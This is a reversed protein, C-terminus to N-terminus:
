GTTAGRSHSYQNRDSPAAQSRGAVGPLGSSRANLHLYDVLMPKSGGVPMWRSPATCQAPSRSPEPGSDIERRWLPDEKWQRAIRDMGISYVHLGGHTDIHMRLFSKYNEIRLSSFAEDMHRGALSALGLYSGFITVSLPAALVWFYPLMLLIYSAFSFRSAEAVGVSCVAARAHYIHTPLDAVALASGFVWVGVDNWPAPLNLLILPPEAQSGRNAQHGTEGLGMLTLELGCAVGVACLSLTLGLPVGWLMRRGQGWQGEGVMVMSVLLGVQLVLAVNTSEFIRVYCQWVLELWVQFVNGGDGWAKFAAEAHGCLPLAPLVAFVMVTGFFVEFAWNRRRFQFPNRLALARSIVSPPYAATRRYGPVQVNIHTPHLFAGGGGAILLEPADQSVKPSYRSYHHIDGALLIRLKSGLLSLINCYMHCSEKKYYADLYWHPGHTICIVNASSPMKSVVTNFYSYQMDDIDDSLGLDFGLVFWNHPLEISWYTNTQPLHWGGFWHRGCITHLFAELGDFWDHNGPIMWCLPTTYKKALQASPHKTKTAVEFTNAGPPPSLAAAYPRILKSEYCDISPHPYALDGGHLLLEGRPLNLGQENSLTASGLADLSTGSIEKRMSFAADEAINMEALSASSNCKRRPSLQSMMGGAMNQLESPLVKHLLKSVKQRLRKLLHPCPVSVNLYPQALSRAVTYTSNFGDGTDAVFDFWLDDRGAFPKAPEANEPHHYGALSARMTRVDFRGLFIKFSVFMFSVTYVMNTTYWSSMSVKEEVLKKMEEEEKAAGELKLGLGAAPAEVEPKPGARQVPLILLIGHRLFRNFFASWLLLVGFTVLIALPLQRPEDLMGCYSSGKGVLGRMGEEVGAAVKASMNKAM